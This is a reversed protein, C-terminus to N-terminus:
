LRGYGIVTFSDLLSNERKWSKSRQVWIPLLPAHQSRQTNFYQRLPKARRSPSICFLFHFSSISSPFPPQSDSMESQHSTLAWNNPQKDTSGNRGSDTATASPWAWPHLDRARSAARWDDQPQDLASGGSSAGDIAASPEGGRFFPPSLDFWCTSPTM